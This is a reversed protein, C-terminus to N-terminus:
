LSPNAQKLHSRPYCIQKPRRIQRLLSSRARCNFLINDTTHTYTHVSIIVSVTVSPSHVHSDESTSRLSLDGEPVYGSLLSAMDSTDEALLAADANYLNAANYLHPQSVVRVHLQSPISPLTAIADQTSKRQTSTSFGGFPSSSM